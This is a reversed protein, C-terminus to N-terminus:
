HTGNRRARVAKPRAGPVITLSARNGAPARTTTHRAQEARGDAERGVSMALLTPALILAIGVLVLDPPQTGRLYRDLLLLGGLAVVLKLLRVRLGNVTEIGLDKGAALPAVRLCHLGIALIQFLAGMLSIRVIVLLDLMQRAASSEGSLTARTVTWTGHLALGAAVLFLGAAIVLAVVIAVAAPSVRAIARPKRRLNYRHGDDLRM